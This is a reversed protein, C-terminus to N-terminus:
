NGMLSHLKHLYRSRRNCDIIDNSTTMKIQLQFVLTESCPAQKGFVFHNEKFTFDALVRRGAWCLILNYYVESCLVCVCKSWNLLHVFHWPTFISDRSLKALNKSSLDHRAACYMECFMNNLVMDMCQSGSSCFSNFKTIGENIVKSLKQCASSM